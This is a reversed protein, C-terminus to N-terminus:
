ATSPDRPILALKEPLLPCVQGLRCPCPGGEMMEFAAQMRDAREAGYLLECGRVDPSTPQATLANHMTPMTRNGSM